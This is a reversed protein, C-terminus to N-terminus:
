PHCLLAIPHDQIEGASQDWFTGAAMGAARGVVTGQLLALFTGGGAGESLYSENREVAGHKGELEGLVERAVRGDERTCPTVTRCKELM